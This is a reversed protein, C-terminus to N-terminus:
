VSICRVAFFISRTPQSLASQFIIFRKISWPLIGVMFYRTSFPVIPLRAVSSGGNEGINHVLIAVPFRGSLCPIKPKESGSGPMCAIRGTDDLERFTFAM